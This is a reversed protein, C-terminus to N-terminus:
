KRKMIDDKQNKDKNKQNNFMDKNKMPGCRSNQNPNEM